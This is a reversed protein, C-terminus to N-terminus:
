VEEALSKTDSTVELYDCVEYGDRFSYIKSFSLDIIYRM